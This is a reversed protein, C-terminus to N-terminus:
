GFESTSHVFERLKQLLATQESAPLSSSGAIDLFLVHALELQQTQPQVVAAM